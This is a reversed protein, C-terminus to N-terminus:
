KRHTVSFWHPAKLTLTSNSFEKLASPHITSMWFLHSFFTVTSRGVATLSEFLSKRRWPVTPSRTVSTLTEKRRCKLYGCVSPVRVDWWVLAKFADAPGLASDFGVQIYICPLYRDKSTIEFFFFDKSHCSPETTLLRQEREKLPDSNCKWLKHRHNLFQRCHQTRPFGHSKRVDMPVISLYAYVAYVWYTNLFVFCFVWKM